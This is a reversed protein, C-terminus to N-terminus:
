GQQSRTYTSSTKRQLDYMMEIFKATSATARSIDMVRVMETVPSVNSSELSGQVVRATESPQPTEDSSYMNSGLRKMAQPDNFEMVGLQGLDEGDVTIQGAGNIVVERANQPIAIEGGDGGLVPYGDPTVLTGDGNMQFNGARTYRVGLPTQVQFYADGSIAVDFPNGTNKMSGQSTDRWSLPDNAYADKAKGDSVLYDSFMLKEANYGATDANAINNASAEMDRFLATQRSLMIYISNDM